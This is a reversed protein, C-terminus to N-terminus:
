HLTNQLVEDVPTQLSVAPLLSPGAELLADLLLHPGGGLLTLPAAKPLQPSDGPSKLAEKQPTKTGKFHWLILRNFSTEVGTNDEKKKTVM